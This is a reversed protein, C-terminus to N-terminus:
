LECSQRITPLYSQCFALYARVISSPHRHQRYVLHIPSEPFPWDPLLRVLRGDRIAMAALFPPLESVVDGSLARARIQVYDNVTFVPRIDQVQSGLSWKVQADVASGWAACPYRELDGPRLPAGLRAILRPSAVLIHRMSLLHQAVVTEHVIPGVRLAVDIGDAVLDVRRETAHVSVQIDPYRRQFAGILDWWPEFSQPLSLRLRGKLRTQENLLSREAEQLAEIGGSAHEYLRGGAETVTTGRVSRELLQVRLQGELEAIKRSLTPLPGVLRRAAASLSGAQVIAVFMQVANLDM